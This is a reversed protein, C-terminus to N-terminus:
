KLLELYKRKYELADEVQLGDAECIITCDLGYEVMLDALHSFDPGFGADRTTRHRKEGARTFEIQSFHIHLQKLIDAGLQGQIKDLVAAFHEKKTFGGQSAAHLHAFDVVPVVRPSVTCLALVEELNGLQAPKGMTEAGLRVDGLGGADAQDIIEALLRQARLLAQARDGQKGAGPHFVVLGAGMWHAAQLSKMLHMVTKEKIQSDETALNVYYPAHLSLSIDYERAKEGLRRATQEGITVGRGCQYEYASLGLQALYYPMDM